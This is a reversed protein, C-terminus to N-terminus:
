APDGTFEKEETAKQYEYTSLMLIADIDYGLPESIKIAFELSDTPIDIGASIPFELTTAGDSEVSTKTLRTNFSLGKYPRVPNVSVSVGDSKGGKNNLTLRIIGSEQAELIKNKNDDDFDIDVYLEPPMFLESVDEISFTIVESTVSQAIATNRFGCLVLVALIYLYRKMM